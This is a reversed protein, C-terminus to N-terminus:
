GNGTKERANKLGNMLGWFFPQCATADTTYHKESCLPMTYHYCTPRWFRQQPNSDKQGQWSFPRWRTHLNKEQFRAAFLPNSRTPLSSLVTHQWIRGRKEASFAFGEAGALFFDGGQTSTEFMLSAWYALLLASKMAYICIDRISVASVSYQSWM